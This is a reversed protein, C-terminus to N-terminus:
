EKVMEYITKLVSNLEEDTTVFEHSSDSSKKIVQLLPDIETRSMFDTMSTIPGYVAALASTEPFAKNLIEYVINLKESFSSASQITSASAKLLSIIREIDM